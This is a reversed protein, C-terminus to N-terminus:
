PKDAHEKGSILVGGDHTKSILLPQQTMLVDLAGQEAANDPLLELYIIGKKVAINVQM